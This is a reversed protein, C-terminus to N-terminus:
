LLNPQSSTLCQVYLYVRGLFDRCIPLKATPFNKKADFLRKSQKGEGILRSFRDFLNRLIAGLVM